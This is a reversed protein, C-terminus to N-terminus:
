LYNRKNRRRHAGNFSSGSKRRSFRAQTALRSKSSLERGSTLAESRRFSVQTDLDLEDYHDALANM